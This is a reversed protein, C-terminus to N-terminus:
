SLLKWRHQVIKCIAQHVEDIAGWQIIQLIDKGSLSERYGRRVRNFFASSRRDMRDGEGRNAMNERAIVVPVDLWIVLDPQPVAIAQNIHEILDLGIGTGYGNYAITSYFSRDSVVWMGEALAPKIIEKYHQARDACYILLEAMPDLGDKLLAEALIKGHGTSGPEKTLIHAINSQSLRDSLLKAQTTKGSGDIGEFAIFM